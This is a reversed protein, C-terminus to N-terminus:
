FSFGASLGYTRSVPDIMPSISNLTLTPEAGLRKWSSSISLLTIGGSLILVAPVGASMGTIFFAASALANGIGVGIDNSDSDEEKAKKNHNALVIFMGASIIFLPISISTLIIGNTRFKYSANKEVSRKIGSSEYFQYADIDPHDGLTSMKNFEESTLLKYDASSRLILGGSILTLGSFM